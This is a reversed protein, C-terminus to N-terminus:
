AKLLTVLVSDLAEFQEGAGTTGTCELAIAEDLAKKSPYLEQLVLVTRGDKEELRVTTVPGDAGEENTWVIRSPPASPGTVVTRVDAECSVFSIGFSPPAWWQKLLEPRAWAEFVLAAPADFTRTVVLELESAREVTTPINMPARQPGTKRAHVYM